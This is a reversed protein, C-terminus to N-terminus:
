RDGTLGAAIAQDEKAVDDVEVRRPVRAVTEQVILELAALRDPEPHVGEIGGGALAVARRLKDDMQRVGPLREVDGHAISLRVPLRFALEPDGLPDHRVIRRHSDHSIGHRGLVRLSADTLELGELHLGRLDRDNRLRRVPRATCSVPIASGGMRPPPVRPLPSPTYSSAM